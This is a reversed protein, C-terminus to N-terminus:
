RGGSELGALVKWVGEERVLDARLRVTSGDGRRGTVFVTARDGQVDSRDVTSQGAEFFAYTLQWGTATMSAVDAPTQKPQRGHRRYIARVAEMEAEVAVLGQLTQTDEEDLAEILVGVVERPSSQESLSAPYPPLTVREGEPAVEAAGPEEPEERGCGIGSPMLLILGALGVCTVFGNVLL